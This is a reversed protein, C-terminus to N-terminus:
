GGNFDGEDYGPMIETLGGLSFLDNSEPATFFRAYELAQEPTEIDVHGVLNNPETVVFDVGKCRLIM